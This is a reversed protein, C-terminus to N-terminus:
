GELVRLYPIHDWILPYKPDKSPLPPSMGLFKGKLNVSRPFCVIYRSMDRKHCNFWTGEHVGQLYM